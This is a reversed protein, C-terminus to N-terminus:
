RCLGPNPLWHFPAYKAATLACLSLSEDNVEVPPPGVTTIEPANYEIMQEEISISSSNSSRSGDPSSVGQDLEPADDHRRVARQNREVRVKHRLTSQVRRNRLRRVKRLDSLGMADLGEWTLEKEIKLKSRIKDKEEVSTGELLEQLKLSYDMEVYIDHKDDYMFVTQQCLDDLVQQASVRQACDRVPSADDSKDGGDSSGDDRYYHAAAITAGSSEHADADAAATRLRYGGMALWWLRETDKADEATSAQSHHGHDHDPLPLAGSNSLTLGRTRLVCASNSALRGVEHHRDDELPVLTAAEEWVKDGDVDMAVLFSEFSDGFTEIGRFGLKDEPEKKSPREKSVRRAKQMRLPQKPQLQRRHHHYAGDDAACGSSLPIRRSSTM